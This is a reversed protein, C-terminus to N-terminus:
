RVGHMVRRSRVGRLIDVAEILQHPTLELMTIAPDQALHRATESWRSFPLPNLWVIPHWTGRIAQLFSTWSKLMIQEDKKRMPGLSAADSIILLQAEPHKLLTDDISQAQIKPQRYLLRRPARDFYYVFAEGLRSQSEDLSDRLVSVSSQWAAMDTSADVLVMLKARNRRAPRLIPELLFGQESLHKISADLDLDIKPGTRTASRLRRWAIVASRLPILPAVTYLFIEESTRYVNATPLFHGGPETGKRFVAETNSAMPGPPPKPQQPGGDQAQTSPLPLAAGPGLRQRIEDNEPMPFTNFLRHLIHREEETRVWLTECLWLLSKRLPMDHHVFGYGARLAKLADEYDKLRLPFGRMLLHHFLGELILEENM